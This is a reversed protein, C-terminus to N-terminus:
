QVNLIINAPRSYLESLTQVDRITPLQLSDSKLNPYMLDDPNNSHGKLGLIHGFEKAAMNQIMISAAEPPLAKVEDLGLTTKSEERIVELKKYQKYQMGAALAQPALGYIGPTLGAALQVIKLLKSSKPVSYKQYFDPVDEADAFKDTYTEGWKFQVDASGEGKVIVVTIQGDTAKKWANLGNMVADRYEPRYDPNDKTDPEEIYVRLPFKGWRIVKGDTTKFIQDLYSYKSAGVPAQTLQPQSEGLMGARTGILTDYLNEIRVSLPDETSLEGFVQSEANDVRETLTLDTNREIGLQNEVDLVMDTLSIHAASKPRKINKKDKKSLKLDQFGVPTNIPNGEADLEVPPANLEATHKIRAEITTDSSIARTKNFWFEQKDPEQSAMELYLNVLSTNVAEQESLANAKELLTIADQHQAKEALEIAEDFYIASLARKFADEEPQLAIASEILNQMAPYDKSGSERLTMAKNFYNGAKGRLAHKSAGNIKLAKNFYVDAEDYKEESQLQIGYNVYLVELNNKLTTENPMVNAAAEYLPIAKDYANIKAYQNASTIKANWDEGEASLSGFIATSLILLFIKTKIDHTKM